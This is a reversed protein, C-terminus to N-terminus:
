CVNKVEAKAPLSRDTERVPSKVAPCLPAPVWQVPSQSPGLALRSATTFLFTGKDQQSDFGLRGTRLRTVISVSIDRIRCILIILFQHGSLCQLSM